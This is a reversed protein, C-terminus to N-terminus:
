DRSKPEEDASKSKMTERTTSEAMREIRGIRARASRSLARWLIFALLVILVTLILNEIAM